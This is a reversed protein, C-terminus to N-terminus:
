KLLYYGAITACAVASAIMMVVLWQPAGDTPLVIPDDKHPRRSGPEDNEDYGELESEEGVEIDPGQSWHKPPPRSSSVKAQNLEKVRRSPEPMTPASMTPPEPLPYKQYKLSEVDDKAPSKLGDGEFKAIVVTINDHGGAQNARDTLVKCAELPDEVSRLVERIEDNRVMGSLGDSCLLLTDGIRLMVYTLDVQM